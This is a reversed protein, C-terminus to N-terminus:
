ELAFTDLSTSASCQEIEGGRAPYLHEAPQQGSVHDYTYAVTNDADSATVRPDSHGLLNVRPVEPL